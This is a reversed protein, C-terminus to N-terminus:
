AVFSQGASPLRLAASALRLALLLGAPRVPLKLSQTELERRGGRLPVVNATRGEVLGAIHSAWRELAAKKEPAYAARNYVGAVRAKAGSIHNLAAEIIHPAIGIEAMGTAATRRLDHLVWHPAKGMAQDLGDKVKSWGSIPTKGTTSFVLESGEVRKAKAILDSAVPPLPVVHPKHNKTRNGPITWEAGDDSLEERRM